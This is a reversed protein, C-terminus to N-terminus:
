WSVLSFATSSLQQEAEGAACGGLLTPQATPFYEFKQYQKPNKKKEKGLALVPLVQFTNCVNQLWMWWSQTCPCNASAVAPHRQHSFVQTLGPLAETHEQPTAPPWKPQPWKCNFRSSSGFSVALAWHPQALSCLSYQARLEWKLGKVITEGNQCAWFWTASASKERCFHAACLGGWVEPVTQLCLVPSSHNSTSVWFLM